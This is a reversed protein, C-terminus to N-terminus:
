YNLGIRKLIDKFRPDSHIDKWGPNKGIFLIGGNKEQMAKELYYFVKDYDKLGKYVLAYDLNLPIDPNADEREKIKNICEEAAKKDGMLAYAFGIPAHGKFGKLDDGCNRHAEQFLELGKEYQGGFLYAFGLNWLASRFNPDMELTIKLQKIADEFREAFLFNEGLANNIILSLPDLNHAKVTEELCEEINGTARYYYSYAYHVYAAGPNLERATTLSQFAGDWDWDYFMKVLGLSIHSETINSDKELAKLAYQKANEYATIPKMNGTAALLLYSNSLGSYPLAFNEEKKMAEKFSLLQSSLM